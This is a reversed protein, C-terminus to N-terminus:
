MKWGSVNASRSTAPASSLSELEFIAAAIMAVTPDPQSNQTNTRSFFDELFSTSVNGSLFTPDVMIRQYFEVTTQIGLVQYERLASSMRQIAETRDKGWAVLKSLLPDYYISVEYGEYIGSDDRIGPGSPTRLRTIKGPSPLFGHYPDEAYIRCEV